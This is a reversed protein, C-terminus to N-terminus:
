MSILKPSFSHSIRNMFFDPLFSCIRRLFGVMARTGCSMGPVDPDYTAHYDRQHRDEASSHSAILIAKRSLQRGRRQLSRHHRLLIKAPLAKSRRIRSRSRERLPPYPKIGASEVTGITWDIRIISLRQNLVCSHLRRCDRIRMGTAWAKCLTKRWRASCRLRDRERIRMGTTGTKRLTKRLAASCGNGQGIRDHPCSCRRGRGNEPVAHHWMSEASNTFVAMNHIRINRDSKPRLQRM